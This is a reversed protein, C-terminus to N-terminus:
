RSISLAGQPLIHVNQCAYTNVECKTKFRSTCGFGGLSFRVWMPTKPARCSTYFATTTTTVRSAYTVTLGM